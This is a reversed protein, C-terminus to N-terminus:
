YKGLARRLFKGDEKRREELNAIRERLNLRRCVDTQFRPQEVFDYKRQWRQFFRHPVEQISDIELPCCFSLFVAHPFIGGLELTDLVM